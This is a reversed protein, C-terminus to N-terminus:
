EKLRRMTAQYLPKNYVSVAEMLEDMISWAKESDMGNVAEGFESGSSFSVAAPSNYSYGVPNSEKEIEWSRNKDGYLTERITYLAALKVCTNYSPNRVGECEAIAEQLDKETIM